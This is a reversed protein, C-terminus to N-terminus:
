RPLARPLNSSTPSSDEPHKLSAWTNPSLKTRLYSRRRGQRKIKIGQRSPTQLSNSVRTRQDLLRRELATRPISPHIQNFCTERQLSKHASEAFSKLPATSSSSFHGPDWLTLHMQRKYPSQSQMMLDVWITWSLRGMDINNAEM